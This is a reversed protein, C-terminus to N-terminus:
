VYITILDGPQWRTERIGETIDAVIKVRVVGGFEFSSIVVAQGGDFDIVDNEKLRDVPIKISQMIKRETPQM